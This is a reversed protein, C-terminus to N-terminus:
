DATRKIIMRKYSSNKLTIADKDSRFTSQDSTTAMIIASETEIEMAATPITRFCGLIAKM